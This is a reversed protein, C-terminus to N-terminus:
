ILGAIMQKSDAPVQRIELEIGKDLLEKILIIDNETVAIAKSISKAGEKARLGGFNVSKIEAVGNVLVCADNVSNVLILIKLHKHKEDNLFAIAEELTKILLKAGAPRALGLTMKQFDDKAVKDNAVILCDVGLAPTWTFAVQGHVLRDDIRTLKIM